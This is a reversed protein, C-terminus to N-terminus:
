YESVRPRAPNADLTVVTGDFKTLSFGAFNENYTANFDTLVSIAIAEGLKMGQIEDSRYHIGATDRGFSINSALKNLENGITLPEGDWRQLSLGDDSQVVPNPIVFSENFFAKLVTVGAGIIVAHGGPFAPHTPCGEPYAQPLLYTGYKSFVSALAPSDLLKTNIPYQAAGTLHNHIRGGVEEPRIRRHVVWKQYWCAKLAHNAVRVILDLIHPGGFTIFGAQNSSGKYPNADDLTQTGGPQRGYDLLILTAVQAGQYSFDRHAWESMDRGNRIYRPMPDFAESLPVPKGNQIDLWMQYSTLFDSGPLLTRYLQQVPTTGLFYPQLLFQSIYPGINEGPFEGRFLNGADVNEYGSFRSLDNIAAATLPENGYQSFPVDRTLARWYEEAMEGAFKEDAFRPPLQVSLSHPDAGELEYAFAAQPNALRTAGGLPVEDFDSPKRSDIAQLLKRYADQDVEGLDNHPLAKSYSAIGTPYRDEDGNNQPDPFRRDLQYIAAKKRIELARARRIQLSTSTSQHEEARTGPADTLSSLGVVGAALTAATLRGAVSLFQRRTPSEMKYKSDSILHQDPQATNNSSSATNEGKEPSMHNKM